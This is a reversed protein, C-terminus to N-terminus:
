KGDDKFTLEKGYKYQSCYGNDYIINICNENFIKILEMEFDSAAELFNRYRIMFDLARDINISKTNKEDFHNQDGIYVFGDEKIGVQIYEDKEIEFLLIFRGYCNDSEHKRYNAELLCNGDNSNNILDALTYKCDWEKSIPYCSM